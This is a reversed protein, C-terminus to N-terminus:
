GGGLGLMSLAGPYAGGTIFRLETMTRPAEVRAIAFRDSAADLRIRRNMGVASRWGSKVLYDRTEECWRGYPFSFHRPTIGLERRLDAACADIDARGEQAHHFRLDIHERTHGGIEFLPFRRVLERADDWDMTLKPETGRPALAERIEALLARRQAPTAELLLPHIAARAARRGTSTGLQLVAGGLSPLRAQDVTRARLMHHLADAWQTEAREVYGTALFLTAPLGYKELIPAVVTLNDLYGDDFTLCVTRPPLPRGADISELVQSLPLVCRRRSLFAMQREFTAPALQNPPDIFGAVARDPVSHYMLVIAGRDPAMSEFATAAGSWQLAFAAARRGFVRCWEPL